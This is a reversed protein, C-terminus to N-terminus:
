LTGRISLIARKIESNRFIFMALGYCLLGSIIYIILAIIDMVPWLRQALLLILGVGGGVVWAPAIVPLISFAVERQAVRYLWLNTFQVCFNAIAFGMIGFYYILPAGLIWTGLMWLMTFGFTTQSRGIANLLGILPTATPVFLNAMWLLYYIPLAALWKEGFIHITIPEILVLMLISLPVTIANTAWIVKEVFAGLQEKYMQMRAFAPMYVRQLIMLALVSYAAVMNAWNVYGVEKLGIMLGILIPTISDKVTSVIQAAQFYMGYKLHGRARQWDWQLGISWPSLINSLVAGTLSRLAIGIAFSMAGWKNWALFVTVTNFVISQGVEVVALKNFELHRELRAQPIAMYSTFLLSFGVLRFLWANKAPLHYLTTIVPSILWLIVFLILVLIQQATFVSRYDAESPDESQRILNAAIGTGGFSILIGLIFTVIAYIGFEELSLIRALLIGGLVNMGQVLVQRIGLAITGTVARKAIDEPIWQETKLNHM